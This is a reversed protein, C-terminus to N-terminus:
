HNQRRPQREPAQAPSLVIVAANCMACRDGAPLPRPPAATSQELIMKIGVVPLWPSTHEVALAAVRHVQAINDEVSGTNNVRWYAILRSTLKGAEAARRFTMLDSENFCMDCATTVGTERYARQVATLSAENENESARADLFPLVINRFATEDIYGTAHGESDRKITGGPPNPTSSTIGLETLAATNVCVSHVDYAFAYVPKGPAVADVRGCGSRGSAFLLVAFILGNALWLIDLSQHLWLNISIKKGGRKPTWSM